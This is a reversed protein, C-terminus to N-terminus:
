STGGHAGDEIPGRPRVLALLEVQVVLADEIVKGKDLRMGHAHIRMPVGIVFPRLAM